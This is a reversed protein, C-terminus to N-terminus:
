DIQIEVKKIQENIQIQLERVLQESLAHAFEGSPDSLSAYLERRLQKSMFSNSGHLIKDKFQIGKAFQGLVPTRNILALVRLSIPVKVRVIKVEGRIKVLSMDARGIQHLDCLENLKAQTQQLRKTMWTNIIEDTEQMLIKDQLVDGIKDMIYTDFQEPAWLSGKFEMVAKLVGKKELLAAVKPVYEPLLHPIHMGVEMNVAGSEFYDNVKTRFQSLIDDTRAAIGLGRAISFEPERCLALQANPFTKKCADQFFAMRSAGGTVILLEPPHESTMGRARELTDDVAQRFSRDKLASIPQDLLKDMEACTVSIKLPLANHVDLYIPALSSCPTNVWSAESRFYDEKVNRAILEGYSKWSPYKDFVAQIDEKCPSESVAKELLLADLLGAGLQEEGFVGVDREKGEVIYAYDITSSGIDIVLTPSKLMAPTLNFENCYHAYLFAARSESVTYVNTFGASSVIEAYRTRAEEKWAAPCGLAIKLKDDHLAASLHKYLGQAFLRLDERASADYLFRSKFRASRNTVMHNLVVTDGIVPVGNLKGVISRISDKEGIPLVSPILAGEHAVETVASEGDGIDIGIYKM